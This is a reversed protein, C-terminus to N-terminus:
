RLVNESIGRSYRYASREPTRRQTGYDVHVLAFRKAYGRLM